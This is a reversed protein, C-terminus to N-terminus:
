TTEKETPKPGIGQSIIPSIKGPLIRPAAAEIEVAVEAKLRHGREIMQDAETDRIHLIALRRKIHNLRAYAAMDILRTNIRATM